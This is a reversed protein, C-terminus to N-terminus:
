PVRSRLSPAVDIRVCPATRFNRRNPSVVGIGASTLVAGDEVVHSARDVHVRPFSERLLDLALWHTTARRGGLLGAQGLILAGTCVSALIEM